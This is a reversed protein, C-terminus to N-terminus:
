FYASSFIAADQMDIFVIEDFYGKQLSGLYIRFIQM